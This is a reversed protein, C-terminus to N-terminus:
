ATTLEYGAKKLLSRVKNTHLNMAEGIQRADMGQAFYTAAEQVQNAEDPPLSELDIGSPLPEGPDEPEEPPEDAAAGAVPGTPADQPSTTVGLREMAAKREPAVAPDHMGPSLLSATYDIAPQPLGHDRCYELVAPVTMRKMTAIQTASVGGAVLAEISEKAPTTAAAIKSQRRRNLSDAEIEIQKIKEALERNVPAVYGPGTHKGPCAIEEDLMQLDPTGDPQLFGYIQCIQRPFVKEDLLQKIPEIRKLRPMTAALCFRHLAEWAAWLEPGPLMTVDATTQQSTVFAQWHPAFGLILKELEEARPAFIVRAQEALEQFRVYLDDEPLLNADGHEVWQRHAKSANDVMALLYARREQDM